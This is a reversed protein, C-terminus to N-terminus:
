DSDSDNVNKWPRDTGYILKECVNGFIIYSNQEKTTLNNSAM